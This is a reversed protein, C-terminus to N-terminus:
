ACFQMPREDCFRNSGGVAAKCSAERCGRQLGQCSPTKIRSACAKRKRPPLHKRKVVKEDDDLCSQHHGEGTNRLRYRYNEEKANRCNKLRRRPLKQNMNWNFLGSSKTKKAKSKPGEDDINKGVKQL